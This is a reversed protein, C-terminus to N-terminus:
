RAVMRQWKCGDDCLIFIEAKSNLYMMGLQELQFSNDRALIVAQSIAANLKM